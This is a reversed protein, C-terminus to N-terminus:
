TSEMRKELEDLLGLLVRREVEQSHTLRDEAALEDLKELRVKFKAAKQELESEELLDLDEKSRAIKRAVELETRMSRNDDRLEKVKNFLLWLFFAALIGILTSVTDRVVRLEGVETEYKWNVPIFWLLPRVGLGVVILCAL